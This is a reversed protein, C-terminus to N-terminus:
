IVRKSFSSMCYVKVARFIKYKSNKGMKKESKPCIQTMIHFPNFCPSSTDMNTLINFVHLLM